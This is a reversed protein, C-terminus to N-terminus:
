VNRVYTIQGPALSVAAHAVSTGSICTITDGTAYGQWQGGLGSWGGPGVNPNGYYYIQGPAIGVTYGGLLPQPPTMALEKAVRMGLDFDSEPPLRGRECEEIMGDWISPENSEVSM